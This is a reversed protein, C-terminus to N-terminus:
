DVRILVALELMEMGNDNADIPMGFQAADDLGDPVVWFQADIETEDAGPQKFRLEATQDSLRIRVEDEVFVVRCLMGAETINGDRITLSHREATPSGDELFHWTWDGEILDLVANLHDPDMM